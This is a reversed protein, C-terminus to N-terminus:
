INPCFYSAQNPLCVKISEVGYVAKINETNLVEGESGYAYIQGDKLLIIKDSIYTHEPYHTTQIIAIGQKSLKKLLDLLRYQNGLDLGNVPEDLMIIKSDQALARCILSLQKQGGSLDSFLKHSLELIGMKELWSQANTLDKKSHAFIGSQGFTGMAVVEVVRFEFPIFYNQPVYAIFRSMMKASLRRIEQSCLTAQGTYSVIGLLAKLLSSKGSGNRGLISLVEQSSLNFSINELVKKRRYKVGLDFVELIPKIM